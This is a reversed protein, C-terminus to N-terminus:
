KKGSDAGFIDQFLRGFGGGASETGSGSTAAAPLQGSLPASVVSPAAGAPRGEGVVMFPAWYSPHAFLLRDEGNMLPLMARRLAEANGVGRARERLTRTVLKLTADSPVAWHTALLARDGAHFFARALGSVGEADPTGDAAATSTATLIVLDANLKLQAIESATLLGDDMETGRQPPTFVLASEALGKFDDAMFGHTAFAIVRYNSLDMRKVGSESADAQLHVDGQDAQLLDAMANLAYRTEPLPAFNWIQNANALADRAYVRTAGGSRVGRAEGGLLPDGFGTFPKSAPPRAANRRLTRLVGESPLMTLAYRRGLWAVKAHEEPEKLAGAYAETVLAAFPLGNLTDDPVIMLHTVGQLAPEASVMIRRYLQNAQAVPYVRVVTRGADDGTPYDLQERLRKIISGLENRGIDLSLLAARDNRVVILYSANDDVMYSLLAEDSALMSQAATLALTEPNLYNKYGPVRQEILLDQQSIQRDVTALEARLRAEEGSGRQGGARAAVDVLTKDLGHWRDLLDERASAVRALGDDTRGFRATVRSVAGTEHRNRAQQMIEFARNVVAASNQSGGAGFSSMQMALSSRYLRRPVQPPQAPRPDVAAVPPLPAPKPSVVPAPPAAPKPQVPSLVAVPPTPATQIPVVPQAAVPPPAVVLPAPSPKSAPVGLPIQPALATQVPPPPQQIPKPQAIPEPASAAAPAPAAAPIPAPAPALAPAPAAAPVLAPTLAAAVAPVPAPEAIPPAPQRVGEAQRTPQRAAPRARALDRHLLALYNRSQVTDPHDMGLAKERIALARSVLPEAESLRGVSRYLAALNNLSSAVRPHQPGLAKDYIAIARVLVPEMERQRNQTHYLLALSELSMGLDPHELGRFKEDISITRRILKESEDFRRQVRYLEALWALTTALRVDSEGFGEAEKLASEFQRTAEESDRRNYAATGADLYRSWTAEDAATAPAGAVLTTALLVALLARAAFTKRM